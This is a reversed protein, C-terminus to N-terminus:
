LQSHRRSQHRFRGFTGLLSLTRVGRGPRALTAFGVRREKRDRSASRLCDRSASRCSLMSRTRQFTFCPLRCQMLCCVFKRFGAQFVGPMMWNSRPPRIPALRPDSYPSLRARRCQLAGFVPPMQSVALGRRSLPASTSASWSRPTAPSICIARLITLWRVGVSFARTFWRRERLM